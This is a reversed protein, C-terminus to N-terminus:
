LTTSERTVTVLKVEDLRSGFRCHEISDLSLQGSHFVEQDKVGARMSQPCAWEGVITEHLM